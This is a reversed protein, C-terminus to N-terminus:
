RPRRPWRARRWPGAWGRGSRVCAGADGAAPFSRLAAPSGAQVSADMPWTSTLPMAKVRGSPRGSSPSTLEPDRVAGRHRQHARVPGALGRQQADDGAVELRVLPRDAAAATEPHHPLEDPETRSSDVTRSRSTETAGGRTRSAACARSAASSAIISVSSSGVWSATRGPAPRSPRRRRSRPRSARPCTCSPRARRATRAHATGRRGCARPRRASAAPARPAAARGRRPAAARRARCSGRRGRCASARPAAARSGWSPGARRARGRAAPGRRRLPDDRELRPRGAGGGPRVAAAEGGVVLRALLPVRPQLLQAASPVLLVGLELREHQHVLGLGGVVVAHGRAVLGRQGPQAPELLGPGGSSAGLSCFTVIRRRPPRVPLRATTQSASSSVPRIRGNSRSTHNPSRTATSPELPEPM